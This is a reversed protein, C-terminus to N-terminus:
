RLRGRELDYGFIQWGRGSPTLYLQGTIRELRDIRRGRLRQAVVVRATAGVARGDRALVDVRIARRRLRVSTLQQSIARNSTLARDRRAERTADRTFDLFARTFRTRPYRGPVYAEEIWTDVTSGVVRQLSTRRQRSLAGTVTGLQVDTRVSERRDREPADEGTCGALGLVLALVAAAYATRRPAPM